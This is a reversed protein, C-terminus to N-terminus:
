GSQPTPHELNLIPALEAGLWPDVGFGIKYKSSGIGLGELPSKRGVRPVAEPRRLNVQTEPRVDVGCRLLPGPSECAPCFWQKVVSYLRSATGRSLNRPTRVQAVWGSIFLGTLLSDPRKTPPGTNSRLRPRGSAQIRCTEIKPNKSM